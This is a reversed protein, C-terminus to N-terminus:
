LNGELYAYIYEDEILPADCDNWRHAFAILLEEESRENNSVDGLYCDSPKDSAKIGVHNIYEGIKTHLEVLAKDTLYQKKDPNFEIINKFGNAFKKGSASRVKITM